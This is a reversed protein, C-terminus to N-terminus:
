GSMRDSWIAVIEDLEDNTTYPTCLADIHPCLKTAFFVQAAMATPIVEIVIDRVYIALFSQRLTSKQSFEPMGNSSSAWYVFSKSSASLTYGIASRAVETVPM